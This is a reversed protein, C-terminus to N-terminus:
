PAGPGRSNGRGGGGASAKIVLPFGIREAHRVAEEDDALVGGSWETVSVGNEEALKKSAIKDGLSRMASASPGLFVIGEQTVREVFSPDEALFGWGPWVADADARRLAKIVVDHDLYAAVAGHDMPLEVAQDAYRVFPLTM